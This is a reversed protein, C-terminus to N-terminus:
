KKILEIQLSATADRLALHGLHNLIYQDTQGPLPCALVGFTLSCGYGIIEDFASWFSYRRDGEYGPSANLSQIYVSYPSVGDVLNCLPTLGSSNYLCGPAGLNTGAIAIFTRVKSGLGYRLLAGRTLTVGFSHTIVNVKSKGTYQLVAQIFKAVYDVLVASNTLYPVVAPSPTAYTTAYLESNKYGAALYTPIVASWGGAIGGLAQDSAGHIFIVPEKTITDSATLKGGFSGGVLDVRPFNYAGYGHTNLWTEFDSTIRNRFTPSAATPSDEFEKQLLSKPTSRGCDETCGEQSTYKVVDPQVGDEEPAGCAALLTLIGCFLSNKM